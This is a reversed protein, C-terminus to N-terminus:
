NMPTHLVGLDRIIAAVLGHSRDSDTSLDTARVLQMM